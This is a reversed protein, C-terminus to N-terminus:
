SQYQSEGWSKGGEPHDRKEKEIGGATLHISFPEKHMPERALRRGNCPIQIVAHAIQAIHRQWGWYRHEAPITSRSSNSSSMLPCIM